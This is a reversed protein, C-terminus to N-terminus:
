WRKILKRAVGDTTKLTAEDFVDPGVADDDCDLADKLISALVTSTLHGRRVAYYLFARLPLPLIEDKHTKAM